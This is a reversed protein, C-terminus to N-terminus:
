RSLVLDLSLYRTDGETVTAADVIGTYWVSVAYSKLASRIQYVRYTVDSAGVFYM